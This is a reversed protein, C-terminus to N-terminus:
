WCGTLCDHVGWGGVVLSKGLGGERERAEDVVVGRGRRRGEVRLRGGDGLGEWGFSAAFEESEVSGELVGCVM